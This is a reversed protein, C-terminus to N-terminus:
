RIEERENNNIFKKIKELKNLADSKGLEYLSKLKNKDKETRKINLNKSPRLVFINGEQQCKEVYDLENNYMEHREALAKIVAPHKKLSLKMLPILKNPQKRYGDPQTLIVLNKKYGLEQFKKLPISDSIGGDLLEYNDVKVVKSVLPMSASARMWQVDEADGNSCKHYVPKGTKVDTCVVYFEMPTSKFTETDFPDLREPIEHYCFQEGFLEGTKLLSRISVYRPDNIYKLNYRITRGIQKSKYNCGFIAGASVGIAGDVFIDNEMLVDLVGATYMGRMAGGELVVGIKM